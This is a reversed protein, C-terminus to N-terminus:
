LQKKLVLNKGLEEKARNLMSGVTGIPKRIIDSIEQYNKEEIFRLIIVERYKSQLRFLADNVASKAYRQDVIRPLNFDAMLRGALQDDLVDAHGEPRVHLKRYHSIVQHRAITYIWSSFKMKQNFSNLNLYVKLFIDQLLDEADDNNINTLRSIYNFLKVKYRSTILAFSNKDELVLPVLQEDTLQDINRFQEM